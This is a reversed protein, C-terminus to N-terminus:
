VKTYVNSNGTEATMTTYMHADNNLLRQM